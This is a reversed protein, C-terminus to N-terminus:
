DQVLIKKVLVGKKTHIQLFYIGTTLQNMDLKCSTSNEINITKINSGYINVIKIESIEMDYDINLFHNTPNPYINVKNVDNVQGIETIEPLLQEFLGFGCCCASWVYDGFIGISYMNKNELGENWVTWTQGYDTTYAVGDGDTGVFMYDNHNVSCLVKYGFPTNLANWSLGNNESIYFKSTTSVFLKDDKSTLHTIYWSNLGNITQTWNEGWNDSYYVGAGDTGVFLRGNHSTMTKISLNSIGNNKANWNEGNDTSYFVGYEDSAAYIGGETMVFTSIKSISLGQNSEIWNDGGDDSIFVGAETGAFVRTSNVLMPHVVTNSLGNNVEVWNDGGDASKFVGFQTGAFTVNNQKVLSYINGGEQMVLQWQAMGSYSILSIIVVLIVKKINEISNKMKKM